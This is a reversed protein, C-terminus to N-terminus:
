SHQKTSRSSGRDNGFTGGHHKHEQDPGLTRDHPTTRKRKRHRTTAETTHPQHHESRCYGDRRSGSQTPNSSAAAAPHRLLADCQGLPLQLREQRRGQQRRATGNVVVGEGTQGPGSCRAVRGSGAVDSGHVEGRVAHQPGVGEVLLHQQQRMRRNNVAHNNGGGGGRQPGQREICPSLGTKKDLITRNKSATEGKDQM